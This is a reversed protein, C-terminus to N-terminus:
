TTALAEIQPSFACVVLGREACDLQQHGSRGHLLDYLEIGPHCLELTYKTDHTKPIDMKAHSSACLQTLNYPQLGIMEAKM